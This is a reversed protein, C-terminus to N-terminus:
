RYQGVSEIIKRFHANFLCNPNRRQRILAIVEASKMRPAVLMIALAAVLASRNMGHACTVLVRGGRRLELAVERAVGAVLRMEASTPHDDRIPCRITRRFATRTPQKEIACLVVLDFQDLHREPDPYAGVWLHKYVNSCDMAVLSESM